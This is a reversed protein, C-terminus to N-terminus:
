KQGPKNLKIDNKIHSSPIDAETIGESLVISSM